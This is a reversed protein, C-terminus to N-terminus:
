LERIKLEMDEPSVTFCYHCITNEFEMGLNLFKGSNEAFTDWSKKEETVDVFM